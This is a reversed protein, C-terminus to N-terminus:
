RNKVKLFVIGGGYELGTSRTQTNSNGLEDSGPASAVKGDTGEYLIYEKGGYIGGGAIRGSNAEGSATDSLGCGLLLEYLTMTGEDPSACPNDLSKVSEPPPQYTNFIIRPNFYQDPLIVIDPDFIKEGEDPFKFYWGNVDELATETLSDDTWMASIDQLMNTEDVGTVDNDLQHLYIDNDKFLVFHGGTKNTRPRDRDGTGIAAWLQYCRDFSLAAPLYIPNYTRSVIEEDVQFTGSTVTVYIDKLDIERIYGIAFSTKGMVGDGVDFGATTAKATLTFRTNDTIATIASAGKDVIETKFLINTKWQMPNVNSVDTKFLHGGVNGFYLTDVYGDNNKDVATLSSPIPFNFEDEKTLLKLEDDTARTRLEGEPPVDGTYSISQDYGLMWILEGNSADVMFIAKGKQDNPNESNFAFGGALFAVWKQIVTDPDNPDNILVRGILPKGFSQGSWADDEFKWLVDPKDDVDTIDLAYFANGGRRLGFCLITSWTNVAGDKKLYIDEVTIRGDVTYNHDGDIVITKLTPLVEDPIFGWIEEGAGQGDAYIMHMIGDNTGVYLVKRRYQHDTYYDLYKEDSSGPPDINPLLRKGRAPPGIFAVDSHFIDGFQPTNIKTIIQEAELDTTGSGFWPQLTTRNATNFPVTETIYDPDPNNTHLNRNIPIKEAADWQHGINLYLWRECSEGNNAIVCQEETEYVYEEPTITGSLDSDFGWLDELKFALLHGEWISAAQSPMFYGVYSTTLKEDMATTTKRPATISSFAYNRLNISTIVLQFAEVLEEYNNATYYAGDGNIATQLLMHNDATFGITYTYINQDGPWGTVQDYGFFDDPFMDQHRMFYAVDDLYDSGNSTYWCTYNPCYSGSPDYSSPIGITGENNDTDGWGDEWSDWSMSRKVPEQRFISDGYKTTDDFRDQTSEGDTMLVVYNNQCWYDMPTVPNSTSHNVTNNAIEYDVPWYTKSAPGPKYYYWIDALAEALPTWTSAYIDWVNNKYAVLASSEDSMDTLGEELTSGNDYTFQFLGLKVIQNSDTAVKCVVERAVQIRTFVQLIRPNTGGLDDNGPTACNSLAPAPQQTVDFTGWTSFHSVAQRQEDTAHVFLWDMYNRPYRVSQGHDETGYLQVIVAKWDRGDPAKQFHGGNVTIPGGQIDSLEFWTNGDSGTYKQSITAVASYFPSDTDRFLVTDGQFFYSTGHGGVQFNNPSGDGNYCGTWFNKGDGNYNELDEQSFEEATTGVLWRAYWGNESMYTQGSTFGDASGYYSISPDYGDDDTGDLGDVGKKPYFIITNMSGSSDMMIVVNPRIINEEITIGMFLEKDDPRMEMHFGSVMLILLFIVFMINRKIKM